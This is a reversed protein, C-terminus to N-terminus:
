QVKGSFRSEGYDTTVPSGFENALDLSGDGSFPM